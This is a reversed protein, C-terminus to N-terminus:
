AAIRDYAHLWELRELTLVGRWEREAGPWDAEYAGFWSWTPGWSGDPAQSAIVFDLNQPLIHSLPIGMPAARNPAAQLPLLVYGNWSAPDLAIAGEAVRLLWRQLDVAINNPLGPAEILRQCCLFADGSLAATRGVLDEFVVPTLSERLAMAGADTEDAFEYLYGLIEARPNVAFSGFRDALGEQNWWPAHAAGEAEPPVLPWSQLMPDYAAELYRIAGNVLPHQSHAHLMRLRQLATTTGLVSSAPTRLDPELAHGFGGDPNQFKALEAYVPEPDAEEFRYRFIAAELPRAATLLYNRAADFRARALMNTVITEEQDM